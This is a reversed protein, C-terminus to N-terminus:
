FCPSALPDVHSDKCAYTDNDEITQQGTATGAMHKIHADTHTLRLEDDTAARSKMM